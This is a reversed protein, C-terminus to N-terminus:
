ENPTFLEVPILYQFSSKEQYLHVTYHGPELNACIQPNIINLIERNEGIQYFRQNSVLLTDKYLEWNWLGEQPIKLQMIIENNIRILKAEAAYNPEPSTIGTVKDAVKGLPYEKKEPFSLHALQAFANGKQLGSYNFLSVGAFGCNRVLAIKKAIEKVNYSNGKGVALTNGNGNWARLGIVIKEEIGPLKIQALQKQFKAYQVDYAMPYVCDIIGKKLWSQWDQAYDVNAEAIDPFVAATLQLAPNIEKLQYYANEVFTNIQMIRWENYTIEAKNQCYENYRALSVPHYGLDSEPYRIYDLHIGDLEPYGAALNGLINLLYEQVEPIGPDIFYGSQHDINMQSGNINYTIWDKHNNYIYNQQIYSQERPTANFVVVWAQVALGKSHAKKLIYALPDFAADELIYSKPEPNPYLYAGQAPDFLADARYRVEVLLENQNCSVATEIVEDISKETTIDWPLVWVSRIEANIRLFLLTFLIFFSKKM